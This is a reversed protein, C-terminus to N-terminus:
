SIRERRRRRLFVLKTGENGSLFMSSSILCSFDASSTFFNAQFPAVVSLMIVNLIIVSLIYYFAVSLM